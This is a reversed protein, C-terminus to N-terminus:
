APARVEATRLDSPATGLVRARRLDLARAAASRRLAPTRQAGVVPHRVEGTLRGRDDVV